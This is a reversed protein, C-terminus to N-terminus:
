GDRKTQSLSLPTSYSEASLRAKERSVPDSDVAQNMVREDRLCLYMYVNIKSAINHCFPFYLRCTWMGVRGCVYVRM